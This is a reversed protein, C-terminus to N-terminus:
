FKRYSYFDMFQSHLLGIMKQDVGLKLKKAVRFHTAPPNPHNHYLMFDCAINNIFSWFSKSALHCYVATGGRFATKFPDCGQNFKRKKASSNSGTVADFISSAVVTHLNAKLRAAIDQVLMTKGCGAPGHLLVGSSRYIQLEKGIAQHEQLWGAIKYAKMLCYGIM